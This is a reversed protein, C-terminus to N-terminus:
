IKSICSPKNFKEINKMEEYQIKNTNILEEVIDAGIYKINLLDVKQMWKFDGCPLDLVSTANINKLLKNLEIVLSETQKIESGTGSISETSEWHNSKYIDTFVENTNMERFKSNYKNKTKYKVLLWNPILKRILKKM